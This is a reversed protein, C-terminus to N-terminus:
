LISILCFTLFLLPENTRACPPDTLRNNNKKPNKKEKNKDDHVTDARDAPYAQMRHISTAELLHTRNDVICFSDVFHCRRRHGMYIKITNTWRVDFAFFLFFFASRCHIGESTGIASWETWRVGNHLSAPRTMGKEMIIKLTAPIPDACSLLRVLLLPMFLYYVIREEDDNERRKRTPWNTNSNIIYSPFTPRAFSFSM